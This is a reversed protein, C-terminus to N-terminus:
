PNQPIENASLEDLPIKFLYRKDNAPLEYSKGGMSRTLKVALGQQLNLRKLDGWRVGRLVMEKKREDLILTLAQQASGSTVPRFSTRKFRKELLSNLTKMSQEVGVMRAQCEAKILYLESTTLGGFPFTTGTYSGKFNLSPTFYLSKRLDASQYSRYFTSDVMVAPDAFFTTLGRSYYLIEPNGSVLPLPFSVALTTDLTNYDILTNKIDLAQQSFDAAKEYEGMSLYVRALLALAAPKSPRTLYQPVDELIPIANILDDLVQQYSESLTSRKLIRGVDATLPLPIGQDSQAQSNQYPAAFQVLLQYFGFARYFLARGRIRGAQEGSLKSVGDLAVNAYFVQQYPSDWDTLQNQTEGSWLYTDKTEKYLNQFVPETVWFDGDAVLPLVPTKNMLDDSNDLLAQFDDATKPILLSKQPKKDLFDSDCACLFAAALCLISLTKFYKLM